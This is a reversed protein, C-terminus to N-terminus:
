SSEIKSFILNAERAIASADGTKTKFQYMVEDLQEDRTVMNLRIDYIFNNLILGNLNLYHFMLEYLSDTNGKDLRDAFKKNAALLIYHQYEHDIIGNKIWTPDLIFDNKYTRV